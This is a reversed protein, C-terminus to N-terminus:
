GGSSRRRSIETCPLQVFLFSPCTLQDVSAKPWLLFVYVFKIDDYKRMVIHSAMLPHRMRLIAWVARVRPRLVLRM